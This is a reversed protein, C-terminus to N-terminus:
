AGRCTPRRARTGDARTRRRERDPGDGGGPVLELGREELRVVRAVLPVRDVRVLAQQGLGVPAVEAEGLVDDGVVLEDAVREALVLLDEDDGLLVDLLQVLLDVLELLDDLVVLLLGVLVRRDVGHV